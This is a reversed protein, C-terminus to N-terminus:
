ELHLLQKLHPLNHMHWFSIHCLEKKIRERKVKYASIFPLYSWKFPQFYQLKNWAKENWWLRWYQQWRWKFVIVSLVTFGDEAWKARIFWLLCHWSLLVCGSDALWSSRGSQLVAWHQVSFSFVFNSIFKELYVMQWRGQHYETISIRSKFSLM